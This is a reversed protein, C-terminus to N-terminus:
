VIPQQGTELDIVALRRFGLSVAGDEFFGEDDPGRHVLAGMMARVRAGQLDPEAGSIIGAIGCMRQNDKFGSFFHVQVCRAFSVTGNWAVISNSSGAGM